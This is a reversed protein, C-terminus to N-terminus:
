TILSRAFCTKPHYHPSIKYGKFIFAKDNRYSSRTLFRLRAIILLAYLIKDSRELSFNESRKSIVFTIFM